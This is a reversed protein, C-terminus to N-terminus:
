ELAGLRLSGLFQTRLELNAARTILECLYCCVSLGLGLGGGALGVIVDCMVFGREALAYGLVVLWWRMADLGAGHSFAVAM